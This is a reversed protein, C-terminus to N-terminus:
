VLQGAKYKPISNKVNTLSKGLTNTSAFAVRIGEPNLARRIAESIRPVYPICVTSTWNHDLPAQNTIRTKVHDIFKEPYSDNLLGSYIREIESKLLNPTSCLREARLFLGKIFGQKTASSHCSHFNLYRGTNAPKRYVTTDLTGDPNRKILCDLFPLEGNDNESEM